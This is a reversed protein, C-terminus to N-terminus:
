QIKAAGNSIRVVRFGVLNLQFRWDFRFSVRATRPKSDWSGGRFVKQGVYDKGLCRQERGSYTPEYASCTWEWVNGVTDYLGFLNPLFSGVPATQKGSFESGSNRCNAKNIGLGNGWWYDTDTGGRAAYEWQAETPLRYQQGTQESLWETYAIADEWSVNIVPRNGRGWGEDDPKKRGTAQAFKDYEAFTVTYRGIAFSEVSVEHVPQENDIGTGQIDGMMFQGAPIVVMEPGLSGDQLRDQILNHAEQPSELQEPKGFVKKVSGWFSSKGRTPETPKNRANRAQEDAKKRPTEAARKAIEAPQAKEQVPQKEKPKAIAAPKRPADLLPKKGVKKLLKALLAIIAQTDPRKEPDHELCDLLFFQLEPLDPLKRPHPFRPSENTLLRYLSAGFAFVDSKAGPKGYQTEGQQEPPAYDLTGFITEALLSKGSHSQTVAAQQKLSTAARALGFDIIKVMVRGDVRKLLLNAPKLDLHYVKAQHAVALGQAIQLAVDLGTQLDLKGYKALWAEGDLAGEIYETVFYPREQRAADVFGYDLPAPVYDGAVQRMVLAEKFIEELRGERKEWFSKVVVRSTRWQNQCLFVCGMGGAGLLKEIPYRHVDHLAYQQPDINIAVQLEALAESYAQRRLLVQFLNFCALAKDVANKALDKAQRFLREAGAIDGASSVMSGAMMVLQNYESNHKPVRKLKALAEQILKQSGSNHQTFEDSPKVQSSLEFRAMLGVMLQKVEKVDDSVEATKDLNAKVDQHVAEIKGHLTGMETLVRDVKADLLTAWSDFRDSFEIFQRQSSQWATQAQQLVQPLNDCTKQLRQVQQTIQGAKQIDRAQMAQLVLAKQEKLQQELTAALNDQASKLHRVDAWLGERQLAAFTNDARADKQLQARFFYLVANGLLENHRFFAELTNDLPAGRRLQELVLDTIALAGESHIIAALETETFPTKEAQFIPPQKSLEQLQEIFQKRLEPLGAHLIGRQAAFPQLYHSDIQESFERTLASKTLKQLFALKQDPAALGASIAALAYGYSAQYTQAIEYPTFNFHERLISVVKGGAEQALIDVVPSDLAASIGKQILTSLSM